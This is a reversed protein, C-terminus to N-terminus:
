KNRDSGGSGQLMNEISPDLKINYRKLSLVFSSVSSIMIVPMDQRDPRCDQFLTLVNRSVSGMVRRIGSMGRCGVVILDARVVDSIRLIETSPDGEVSLVNINNFSRELNKRAEEIIKESNKQEAGRAHEAVEKLKEAFDPVHFLLIDSMAPWIVNLITIEADASFPIGSLLNGAAVSHASGDTAFLIKLRESKSCGPPKSVLVPTSSSLAVSNTVSGIFLSKIGKLGRAGMAILDVGANEAADIICLDPIGEKMLTTVKARLPKLINLTADIIRPSMEKKKRNIVDTYSKADIYYPPPLFIVHFIIIEDEPSLNLCSLLRAALESYESGDTALLIKM